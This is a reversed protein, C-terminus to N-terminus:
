NTSVHNEGSYNLTSQINRNSASFSNRRSNTYFTKPKAISILSSQMSITNM